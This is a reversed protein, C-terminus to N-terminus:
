SGGRVKYERYSTQHEEEQENAVDGMSVLPSGEENCKFIPADMTKKNHIIQSPVIDSTLHQSYPARFNRPSSTSRSSQQGLEYPFLLFLFM